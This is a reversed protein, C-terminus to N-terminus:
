PLTIRLPMEIRKGNKDMVKVPQWSIPTIRMESREINVLLFHAQPAWGAINTREMDRRVDGRRLEGGAGSIVFRISGTRENSESFQFNHEHGSFVVRTGYRKFLDMFHGLAGLSPEHRPGAGFPPHHFYPIRWPARSAPLAQSLWKFQDSEAAYAPLPPGELTNLTTDLAFFDALEGYSFGYHRSAELTPFFFNDLYVILDDRRESENGDHNGLSPYFPIHALLREYPEFFKQGWDRDRDGSRRELLGDAYINDGTTIVFRVPNDAGNHREFEEWMASAIRYQTGDGSGWDGIVFFALKDAKRPWTRLKGSGIKKGKVEVEYAYEQGPTLGAALVWNRKEERITRDGIRVVAPGHSESNRGITNGFGATFGWAVLAHDASLVGVYTYFKQAQVAPVALLLVWLNRAAVALSRNKGKRIFTPRGGDM